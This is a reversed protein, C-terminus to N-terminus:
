ATASDAYAYYGGFACAQCLVRGHLKIERENIIEEACQDCNVRVGPRSIIEPIPQRLTVPRASLLEEDPMVQYADLYAHWRSRAQPAYVQALERVDPRPAIRVARGSRTDVLTCAMKGYDEVRLTRRGMHCDTAVAIGDAGCGDTEVITLLQKRRNEFRNAYPEDILGLMRLGFLGMRVGLIQRPCLHKHREASIDLLPQLASADPLDTTLLM